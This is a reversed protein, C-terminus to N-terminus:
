WLMQKEKWPLALRASAMADLRGQIDARLMELARVFVSLEEEGLGEVDVEWWNQKGASAQAARVKEM